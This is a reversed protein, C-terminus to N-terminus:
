TSSRSATCCAPSTATTSCARHGPPGLAAGTIVVPETPADGHMSAAPEAALPSRRSPSATGDARTPAGVGLGGRVLGCLAQNFSPSTASRRTTPPCPRAVDDGLVDAAFGQLARKPGVEVFVRAGADYLTRLGKVFQM